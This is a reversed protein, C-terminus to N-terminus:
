ALRISVLEAASAQVFDRYSQEIGERETNLRRKEAKGLAARIFDPRLSVSLSLSLSLRM